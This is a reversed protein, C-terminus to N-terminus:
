LWVLASSSDNWCTIPANNLRDSLIEMMSSLLNSLLLCSLLELRPTTQKKLPTVKTKATLIQVRVGSLTERRLYVVACYALESSDSFGHVQVSLLNECSEPLICRQIKITGIRKLCAIFKQWMIAVDDPIKTNWGIKNKCVLQFIIKFQTVIPAIIGIADYFTAGVKLLNLKTLIIEKAM